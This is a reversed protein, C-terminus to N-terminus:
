GASRKTRPLVLQLAHKNVTILPDAAEHLEGDLNLRIKRGETLIRMTSARGHSVLDTYAIHTGEQYRASLQIIKWRPVNQILCYDLMGDDCRASPVPCYGGGYYRGNGAVAFLRDKRAAPRGDIEIQFSEAIRGCMSVLLGLYYPLTGRMGPIRRFKSVHYAVKVDLGASVTNICAQGDIMLVDCPMAEAEQYNALACFQEPTIPAFTKVFDNGTGIPIVALQANDHGILGNVVEHLTGDGGCAYVRISRCSCAAQDALERAHGAHQTFLVQADPFHDRIQRLLREQDHKRATSNIIFVHKM